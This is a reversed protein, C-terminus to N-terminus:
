VTNSEGSFNTVFIDQWGDGNLDGIDVGMGAEPIGNENFGAGTFIANEEFIDELMM